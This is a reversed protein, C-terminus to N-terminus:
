EADRNLYRRFLAYGGFGIMTGLCNLLIDDVDFFGFGTILQLVELGFSILGGVLLTWDWKNLKEWASPVFIGMPIFLSVNGALNEFSRIGKDYYLLYMRISRFPHWNAMQFGTHVVHLSWNKLEYVYYYFSYKFLIAKLLFLIYVVFLAILLRKRDQQKM